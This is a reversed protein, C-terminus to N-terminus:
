CNQYKHVHWLIHMIRGRFLEAEQDKLHHTFRNIYVQDSHFKEFV